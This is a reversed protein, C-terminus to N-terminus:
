LNPTNGPTLGVCPWHCLQLLGDCREPAYRPHEKKMSPVATRRNPHQPPVATESIERLEKEKGHGFCSLLLNPVPIKQHGIAVFFRIPGHLLRLTYRNCPRPKFSNAHSLAPLRVPLLLCSFFVVYSLHRDLSSHLHHPPSGPQIAAGPAATIDRRWNVFPQNM